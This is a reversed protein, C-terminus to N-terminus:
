RKEYWLPVARRMGGYWELVERAQSVFRKVEEEGYPIAWAVSSLTNSSMYLALLPWFEPPVAGGFYGDVMGCAFRPSSQACWVIRNFEEWPDGHDFRDFDIIVLKGRELMMNGTHYDGHQFCQPRGKLLFRNHEMYEIVREAGDFKVPCEEYLRIKRDMKANFRTEWDPSDAPAPISHIKKLIVGSDYGLAYQREEPMGPVANEANEGYVWSQVTYFGEECEGCELPECTPVGLDFVRKQLEFAKKAKEAKGAPAIRLFYEKGDSGSARYKKDGSWGADVPVLSVLGNKIM